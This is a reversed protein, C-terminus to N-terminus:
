AAGELADAGPLKIPLMGAYKMPVSAEVYCWARPDRYAGRWWTGETEVQAFARAAARWLDRVMPDDRDTGAARAAPEKFLLIGAGTLVRGLFGMKQSAYIVIWNLHRVQQLAVMLAKAEASSENLEGVAAEDWLIIRGKIRELERLRKPDPQWGEALAKEDDPVRLASKLSQTRNVFAGVSLPRVPVAESLEDWYLQVSEIPYGTNRHFVEALRELTKTKGAGPPGFIAISGWELRALAHQFEDWPALERFEGEIVAHTGEPGRVIQRTETAAAKTRAISQAVSSGLGPRAVDLAERWGHERLYKVAEARRAVCPCPAAVGDPGAVFGRGGCYACGPNFAVKAAMGIRAAVPVSEVLHALRGLTEFADDFV